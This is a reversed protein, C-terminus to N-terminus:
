RDSLSYFALAANLDDGDMAREWVGGTVRERM